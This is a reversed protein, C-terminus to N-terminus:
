KLKLLSEKIRKFAEILKAESTAYSIRLCKEAGFADGSVLSVHADSLLYMCLDEANNILTTGDSKGFYSSVDPFLYFAGGPVNSIVGPIDKAMEVVLNRRREFAIRMENTADRKGLLATIAAKQAISNAGSTFQGQLKECAKAIEVDAAIYGIRWGTMAFGKSLGNITIVRDKIFNFQAISEHKGIFNIPEYIEDSIIFINPYKEFVKAFSYLEEKSFVSGTPNCPSSFIFLKTKATISQELQEATIKYDQEVSASVCVPIGEALKVMETYSVWYPAPIIVEDGPNVLALITNMISHKAGTSVVIQEPSYDLNNEKKFKECIATRLDPFGSVPTYFTFGDDLAKKAADKIFEPTQFDPEGLTLNIVDVGKATLERSKKAMSLTKSEEFYGIRKALEIM